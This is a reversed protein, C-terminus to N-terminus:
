KRPKFLNILTNVANNTPTTSNNNQTSTNPNNPTTQSSNTTTGGTVNGTKQTAFGICIGEYQNLLGSATSALKSGSIRAVLGLIEKLKNADFMIDMSTSTKQVYTPISSLTRGMLTINFLFNGDQGKQFTGHLTMRKLVLTCSGDPQITLAAGTLGYKQYYPDLKQRLVSAAAIGGANKLFNESKFTVASGDVTWVGAMDAVEINSTSFVGELIGGIVGGLGSQNSQGSQGTQQSGASGGLLGLVNGWNLQASAPVTTTLAFAIAVIATIKKMLM